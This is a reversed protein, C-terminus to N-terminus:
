LFYTFYEDKITGSHIPNVYESRPKDRVILLHVM